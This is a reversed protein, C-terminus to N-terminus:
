YKSWYTIARDARTEKCGRSPCSSKSSSSSSSNPDWRHDHHHSTSGLARDTNRCITALAANSTGASGTGTGTSTIAGADTPAILHSSQNNNSHNHNSNSNTNYGSSQTTKLAQLVPPLAPSLQPFPTSELDLLPTLVQELVNDSQGGTDRQVGQQPLQKQQQQQQQQQSGM